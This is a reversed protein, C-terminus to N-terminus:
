IARTPPSFSHPSSYLFTATASNLEILREDTKPNARFPEPTSQLTFNLKLPFRLPPLKSFKKFYKVCSKRAQLNKDADIQLKVVKEASFWDLIRNLVSSFSEFPSPLSSEGLEGRWSGAVEM